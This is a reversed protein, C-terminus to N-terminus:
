LNNFCGYERDAKVDLLICIRSSQGGSNKILYFFQERRTSRQCAKVHVVEIRGLHGAHFAHELFALTQRAKIHAM